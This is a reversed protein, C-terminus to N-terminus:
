HIEVRTGAPVHDYIWKADAISLRICGHSAPEGLKEAEEAIVQKDADMPVTHFLYVGWDRFSVWWEAGEQYKSSFFWNGRNQVYFTGTPTESGDAGSSCTMEQLKEEGRIVKVTQAALDVDVWLDPQKAQLQLSQGPKVQGARGLGNRAAIFAEPLDFRAAIVPLSDGEQVQYSGPVTEDPTGQGPHQPPQSGSEPAPQGVVPGPEAAAAPQRNADLAPTCATLALMSIILLMVWSTQRM